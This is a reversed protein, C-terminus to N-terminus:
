SGPSRARPPPRAHRARGRRGPGEAVVLHRCRAQRLPPAHRLRRLHRRVPCPGPPDAACSSRRRPLRVGSTPATGPLSSTTHRTSPPRTDPLRGYPAALTRASPSGSNSHHHRNGLGRLLERLCPHRRPPPRAPVVHGDRHRWHRLGPRHRPALGAPLGLLTRDLARDGGALRAKPGAARHSRGLLAGDLPAALSWGPRKACPGSSFDPNAPRTAPM